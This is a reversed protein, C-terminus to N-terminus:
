RMLDIIREFDDLSYYSIVIIGRGESHKIEVKTGLLSVLEEEMKRIQANKLTGKKAPKKQRVGEKAMKELARVSVSSKMIERFLDAQQRGSVSLLAKAHGTSIEGRSLAEQIDSPLQLLRLTNAITARDKGVRTAIEAQKLDFRNILMKYAQAEEIPNLDTRQINEILAMTLNKIEDAEIVIAKITKLGARKAARLRREGAVLSYGSELKRAIVPQLLGVAQISAALGAIDTDDFNSRPQDPNPLVTNVDLEVILEANKAIGSELAAVPKSSSSIIASLGKGLVKKGM